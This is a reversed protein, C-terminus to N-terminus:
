CRAGVRILTQRSGSVFVTWFGGDKVVRAKLGQRRMAEAFQQADRKGRTTSLAYFTKGNIKKTQRMAM